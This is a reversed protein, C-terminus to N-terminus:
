ANIGSLRLRLDNPRSAQRLAEGESIIGQQCLRLLSEDFSLMGDGNGGQRIADYIKNFGEGRLVIDRVLPTVVLIENAAVLNAKDRAKVLRQSIVAQLASALQIRITQQQEGPFYSMLRTLAEVSDSTHLTGLVLHGTEAAKLGTEITTKDRLEGLVVVDPNQRLASRLAEPFSDVDIGVERQSITAKRDIFEFEIPDEITIVHVRRKRNIHQVLAALTTSKGSGTAGTVLILGRRRLALEELFLPLGLEDIKLIRNPIIRISMSFTQRQRFLNVRFNHKGEDQIRFDADQNQSIAAHLRPPVISAIWSRMTEETIIGAGEFERLDGNIRM